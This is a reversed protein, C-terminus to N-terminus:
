PAVGRALQFQQGEDVVLLPSSFYKQSRFDPFNHAIKYRHILGLELRRYEQVQLITIGDSQAIKRTSAVTYKAFFLERLTVNSVLFSVHLLM